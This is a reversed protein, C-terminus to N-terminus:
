LLKLGLHATLWPLLVAYEALAVAYLSGLVPRGDRFNFVVGALLPGSIPGVLFFPALRKLRSM